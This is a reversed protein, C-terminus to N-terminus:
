NAANAAIDQQTLQFHNNWCSFLRKYCKSKLLLAESICQLSWDLGGSGMWIDMVWGNRWFGDLGGSSVWVELVWGSRWVGDLGGSGMWAQLVWRARWLGDLGVSSM